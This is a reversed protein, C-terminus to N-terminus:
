LNIFKMKEEELEGIACEMLYVQRNLPSVKLRLQSLEKRKEKLEEEIENKNRFIRKINIDLMWDPERSLNMVAEGHCFVYKMGNEEGIEGNWHGNCVHFKTGVPLTSMITPTGGYPGEEIKEDEFKIEKELSEEIVKIAKQIGKMEGEFFSKVGVTKCSDISEKIEAEKKKLVDLVELVEKM